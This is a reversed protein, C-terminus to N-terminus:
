RIVETAGGFADVHAQTITNLAADSLPVVTEVNADIRPLLVCSQSIELLLKDKLSFGNSRGSGYRERLMDMTMDFADPGEKHFEYISKGESSKYTFRRWVASLYQQMTAITEESVSELYEPLESIEGDFRITFKTHDFWELAAFPLDSTPGILVPICQVAIAQFM